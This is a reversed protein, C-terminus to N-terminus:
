VAALKTELESLLPELIAVLDEHSDFRDPINNHFYFFMAETYIPYRGRFARTILDSAMDIVRAGSYLNEEGMEFRLGTKIRVEKPIEWYKTRCIETRDYLDRLRAAYIAERSSVTLAALSTVQVNTLAAAEVAGSQFGAECLIIGRDAGLDSLIERLALV